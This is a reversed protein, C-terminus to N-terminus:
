LAATAPPTSRVLVGHRILQGSRETDEIAIRWRYFDLALARDGAAVV